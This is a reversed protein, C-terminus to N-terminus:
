EENRGMVGNMYKLFEVSLHDDKVFFEHRENNKFDIQTVPESRSILKYIYYGYSGERPGYVAGKEANFFLDDAISVGTLFDMYDNEGLFQRLPNRMQQGFRGRNPQPMQENTGRTTEPYESYQLLVQGFPKGDLLAQVAVEARQHASKFANKKQWAGTELDMASFLIVQSAVTGSAIFQRRADLHAQMVSEPLPDPLTKRFSERLLKYQKFMELTPFGMFELAVQEYTIYSEVYEKREEDIIAQTDAETLLVGKATLDERLNNSLEVWTAAREQDVESILGEIRKLMEDTKVELDNVKLCIGNPLGDFPYLITASNMMWRFVQPRLFMQMTMGDLEYAEGKERKEILQAPMKEVMQLWMSGEEEGGFIEKLLDVPWDEPEVPFFLRELEMQRRVEKHYADQDYGLSMVQEWFDLDPNKDLFDSVNKDVRNDVELDSVDAWSMEMGIEARRKKESEILLAQMHQYLQQGGVSYILTRNYFEEASVQEQVPTEVAASVQTAEQAGAGVVLTLAAAWICVISHIRNMIKPSVQKARYEVRLM